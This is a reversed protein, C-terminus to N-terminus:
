VVGLDISLKFCIKDASATHQSGPQAVSEEIMCVTM